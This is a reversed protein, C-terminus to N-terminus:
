MQKENDDAPKLDTCFESLRELEGTAAELQDKLKEEQQKFNADLGEARKTSEQAKAKMAALEAVVKQKEQAIRKLESEKEKLQSTVSDLGAHLRRVSLDVGANEKMLNEIKVRLRSNEHVIEALRQVPLETSLTRLMGEVAAVDPHVSSMTYIWPTLHYLRNTEFSVPSDIRALSLTRM